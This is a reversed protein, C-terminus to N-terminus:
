HRRDSAHDPAFPLFTLPVVVTSVLGPIEPHNTFRIDGGVSHLLLRVTALGLGIGPVEGTFKKELQSYPRGLRALVEPPLGPGPAFVKLEWRDAVRAVSVELGVQPAASFKAYNEFLETLVVEFLPPACDVREGTVRVQRDLGGAEAARSIVEALPVRELEIQQSIPAFVAAHYSLIHTLTHELREASRRAIELLESAPAPLVSDESAALFALVPALGNLPTRIKHSIFHQFAFTELEHRVFGSRNTFKLLTESAQADLAQVEVEFWRTAVQDTEPHFIAFGEGPALRLERWAAWADAPEARYHRGIAAAVDVGTEDGLAFAERARENAYVLAGRADAIILPELSHDLLWRFRDREGALARFRNLRTITQVKARLEPAFFPKRLFDDAGAELAALMAESEEAASLMIVPIERTAADRRLAACVEYGTMGPMMVDLLILDPRLAAAAALGTPGDVAEHVAFPGARQLLDALRLRVAVDDDVILVTSAPNM